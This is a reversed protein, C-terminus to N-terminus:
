SVRLMTYTSVSKSYPIIDDSLINNNESFSQNSSEELGNTTTSAPAADDLAAPTVIDFAAPAHEDNIGGRILLKRLTLAIPSFGVVMNTWSVMMLLHQRQLLM